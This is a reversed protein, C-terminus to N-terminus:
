RELTLTGTRTEGDERVQAHTGSFKGEAFSGEFSFTVPRKDADVQGELAGETLSGKATGKYIHDEGEFTFYFAVEWTGEGSPTFVAELDGGTGGQDWVYSGKLKEGEDGHVTALPLALLSVLLALGPAFRKMIDGQRTEYEYTTEPFPNGEPSM